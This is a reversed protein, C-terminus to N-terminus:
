YKITKLQQMENSDLFDSLNGRMEDVVKENKQQRKKKKGFNWHIM